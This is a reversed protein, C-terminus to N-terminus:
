NAIDDTVKSKSLDKCYDDKAGISATDGGLVLMVGFYLQNELTCTFKTYRDDISEREAAPARDDAPQPVQVMACSSLTAFIAAIAAFRIFAMM